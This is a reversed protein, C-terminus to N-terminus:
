KPMKISESYFEYARLALEDLTKNSSHDNDIDIYSVHKDDSIIVSSIHINSFFKWLEANSKSRYTSIIWNKIGEQIYYESIRNNDFECSYIGKAAKLFADFLKLNNELLRDINLKTFKISKFLLKKGKKTGDGNMVLQLLTEIGEYTWWWFEELILVIDKWLFGLYYFNIIREDINKWFITLTNSTVNISFSDKDTNLESANSYSLRKITTGKELTKGLVKSYLEDQLIHDEEKYITNRKSENENLSSMKLSHVTILWNYVTEEFSEFVVSYYWDEIIQFLLYYFTEQKCIKALLSNLLTDIEKIYKSNEENTLNYIFSDLKSSPLTDFVKSKTVLDYISSYCLHPSHTQYPIYKSNIEPNLILINPYIYNISLKISTSSSNKLNAILKRLDNEFNDEYSYWEIELEHLSYIFHSYVLFKFISYASSSVRHAEDDEWNIDFIWGNDKFKNVPYCNHVDWYIKLFKIQPDNFEFFNYFERSTIITTNMMIDLSDSNRLISMMLLFMSPTECRM